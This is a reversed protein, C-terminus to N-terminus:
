LGFIVDEAEGDEIIKRRAVGLADFHFSAEAGGLALAKVAAVDHTRPDHSGVLDAIGVRQLHLDADVALHARLPYRVAHQERELFDDRMNGLVLGQHGAFEDPGARDAVTASKFNAPIQFMAIRDFEFDLLDADQLVSDLALVCLGNLGTVFFLYHPFAMARLNISMETGRCFSTGASGGPPCGVMWYM